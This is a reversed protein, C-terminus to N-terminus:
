SRVDPLHRCALAGGPAPYVEVVDVRLQPCYASHAKCWAILLRHLRAFKAPNVADFATGFGQSSRTKVEVAALAGAPDRVVLDLEGSRCRWNRDLIRYGGAELHEAAAREGRAGLEQQQTTM